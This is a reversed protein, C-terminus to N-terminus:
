TVVHRDFDFQLSRDGHFFLEAEGHTFAALRHSRANNCLDECLANSTPSPISFAWPDGDRPKSRGTFNNHCFLGTLHDPQLARRAVVQVVSCFDLDGATRLLDLQFLVAAAFARVLQMLDLPLSPSRPLMFSSHHVVFASGNM